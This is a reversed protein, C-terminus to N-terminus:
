PICPREALAGPLYRLCVSWSRGSCRCRSRRTQIEAIIAWLVIAVFYFVTLRIHLAGKALSKWDPASQWIIHEDEPLEAPLGRTPEHDYESM